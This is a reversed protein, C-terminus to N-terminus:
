RPLSPLSNAIKNRVEKVWKGFGTADRLQNKLMVLRLSWLTWDALLRRDKAVAGAILKRAAPLRNQAILVGAKLFVELRFLQKLPDEITPHETVYPVAAALALQISILCREPDTNGSHQRYLTMLKPIFRIRGALALRTLFVWDESGSMRRDELFGGISQYASVKLFTAGLPLIPKKLILKAIDGEVSRKIRQAAVSAAKGDWAQIAGYAAVWEDSKTGDSAFEWLAGPSLIDDSDFFLLWDPRLTKITWEAGYNRAAGREGNNKVLVKLKANLASLGSLLEYTGDSSGDDVVVVVFDWGSPVKQKLISDVAEMVFLKRNYTPIVVALLSQQMKM